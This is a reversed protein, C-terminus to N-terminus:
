GGLWKKLPNTTLQWVLWDEADKPNGFINGTPYRKRLNKEVQKMVKAPHGDKHMGETDFVVVTRKPHDQLAQNAELMSYTSLHNGEEKPDALYFLHHSAKLKAVEEKAGDAATWTGPPLAPNFIWEKPIGRNILREITGLRWPNNGVTGGLFVLKAM